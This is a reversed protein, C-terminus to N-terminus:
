KTFEADTDHRAVTLLPAACSKRYLFRREYLGRIAKVWDRGLTRGFTLAEVYETTTDNTFTVPGPLMGSVDGYVGNGPDAPNLVGDTVFANM